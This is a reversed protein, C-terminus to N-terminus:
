LFMHVFNCLMVGWFAVIKIGDHPCVTKCDLMPLYFYKNKTTMM